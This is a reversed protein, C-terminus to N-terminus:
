LRSPLPQARRPRKAPGTRRSPLLALRGGGMDLLVRHGQLLGVGLLGTPLRGPAGPAFIQVTVDEFRLGAFGVVAATTMRDHSLGGFVISPASGDTAEAGLGARDAAASSLALPSSAGTDVVVELPKGGLTVTTLLQRNARRAPVALAGPPLQFTEPRRFALRARPFDIDAILGQLVDQGLIVSVGARSIPGLEVAAAKLGRLTLAGLQVDLKAARGVQPAGSVGFAIVPSMASLPLSLTQVLALDVASAQAGSDVLAKVPHGNALADIIIVGREAEFPLWDTAAADAAFVITPPRWLVHDRLYWAGGAGAALLGLQSLFARRSTL